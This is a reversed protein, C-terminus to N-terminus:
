QLGQDNPIYNKGKYFITKKGNVEEIKWDLEDNKLNSPGDKIIM